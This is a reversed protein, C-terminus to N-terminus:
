KILKFVRKESGELTILQYVGHALGKLEDELRIVAGVIEVQKSFIVKGSLDVLSIDIHSVDSQIRIDLYSGFPNPYVSIHDAEAVALVRNGDLVVPEFVSGLVKNAAYVVAGNLEFYADEEMNYLKFSLEDAEEATASLFFLSQDDVSTAPAYGIVEDKRYAVLVYEEIAQAFDFSEVSAVISMTHGGENDQVTFYSDYSRENVSRSGSLSAREPYTLTGDSTTNLMYGKGPQMNTLSGVWGLASGSYMAFSTSSKIVDGVEPSISVLAEALTMKEQPLFGIYNWGASIAIPHGYVDFPQGIVKLTASEALKVKYMDGATFGGSNSLTGFWAGSSYEDFTSQNKVIDGEAGIDGFLSGVDSLRADDLNFSIWTWGAKLVYERSIRQDAEIDVPSVVTGMITNATFTIEPTVNEHTYGTSADYVRLEIAENNVENSYITLFVQYDDVGSVYTPRAVGRVEDGVFAAVMDYQDTSIVGDIIVRGFVNMSYEFQNEDVQWDPEDGSVRLDIALRDNFGEDTSLYIGHGYSGVNLADNVDFTIVVKELPNVFGSTQSASLWAPINELSYGQASGSKNTFSATFSMSEDVAKMLELADDDWKIQNQQVYATWTVPSLLKNGNLDRVSLITIEMVQGEIRNADVNPIIIIQDNNVAFDFPLDQMGRIDRIAPRQDSFHDSGDSSVADSVDSLHDNQVQDALTNEMIYAGLLVEYTEFPHYSVLGPEDREIKTHMYQNILTASRATNWFRVEDVAGSLYNDYSNTAADIREVRAGLTVEAGYFQDINAANVQNQREGDIYMRANASRDVVFALHHWDGDMYDTNTGQFDYGNSLVHITGDTQAEIVVVSNPNTETDTGDGLGNSLLTQVAGTSNGKFWLEITFDTETDALINTSSITLYNAGDLEWSVGGPELSWEAGITAHRSASRDLGQTGNGEDLPWYGYLGPENGVLTISMNAVAEGYTRVDEWIRLEHMRGAFQGSGIKLVGEYSPNFEIGSVDALVQDDAYVKVKKNDLDYAFVWHHWSDWPNTVTYAASPDISVTNNGLRFNIDAGVQTIAVQNSGSGTTMITTESSASAVENQMWFEITFSKKNFTVNDITVMDDVGDFQVSTAHSVEAGNLVSRVEINFDKVFGAEIEESFKILIDDGANLVGDAPSPTGFVVPNSTDLTGTLYDSEFVSGDSCHARARIQYKGDNLSSIDWIFSVDASGDIVDKPGDYEAYGTTEANKFYTMVTIPTGSLTKYQFDIKELTSLNVNYGDLNVPIENGDAYNIIWNENFNGVAVDSCKPLFRASVYVTDAIDAQSTTPDFQCTSHLIIGISDYKLVGSAGQQITLTKQLIENANVLYQREATLGDILLIAGDPNTSEDISIEYWMNTSTESENGLQLTFVAKEGEPVNAQISPSVAITPIERKLTATHLNMVAGDISVFEAEEGGEYPCRSAGGRVSFIPSSIKFGTVNFDTTLDDQKNFVELANNTHDVAEYVFAGADILFQATAIFSNTAGAKKAAYKAIAKTVAAGALYAGAFILKEQTEARFQKYSKQYDAFVSKNYIGVGDVTKVDISYYDGEDKEDIVYGFTLSHDIVKSGTNGVDVTGNFSNRIQLGAGNSLVGFGANWTLRMSRVSSYNFDKNYSQKVESSYVGGSGDISINDILRANIKDAENDALRNLWSTIQDNIFQVSDIDDGTEPTFTYSLNSINAEPDAQLMEKIQENFSNDDNNLGYYPSSMPLHSEYKPGEFLEDRLVLLTPILEEVIYRQSYIFYTQIGNNDVAYGDLVAIVVDSGTIDLYESTELYTEAWARDVLRLNSTKSVLVNTARGIFLDADSGVDEPDASTEIRETFDYSETYHGNYDYARSVQIGTEGIEDTDLSVVPGALGGGAQVDVGKNVIKDLSQNTLANLEWGETVSYSSGKEIYAYSNSGPPDRLVFDVQDPGYTVFGTGEQPKVGLVYARFPDSSRWAIGYGEVTANVEFTKTFSEDGNMQINPSGALFAYRFLGNEDTQGTNGQDPTSGINDTIAVDAKVVPVYDIIAGAPHYPNRYTEVVYVNAEYPKGMNFFPYDFPNSVSLDLTKVEGSEQDSYQLETDGEFAEDNKGYVLIEPTERIIFNQKHHYSYTASSSDEEDEYVVIEDVSNRLDLVPLDEADIAYNASTTITSIVFQEPLMEIEYEGTYPDTDVTVVPLDYAANQLNFSLTASGVNNTSLGFGLQKEAERTGGVLRGAVKIKTSDTFNVQLDEIFEHFTVSGLEDLPPFYGEYFTHGDKEVSLYHNGIPVNIEYNGEADTRVVKNDSGLAVEGDILVTVDQVPVNTDKYSVKGTVTFFSIDDFDVNNQVFSGDGLYISKSSPTFQHQGFAPTVRFVNGSGKYPIYDATYDGFQDTTARIGLKDSSPIESSFSTGGVFLGDNQNFNEGTKAVDYVESGVGEDFRYYVKLGVQENSILRDYNNKIQDETRAVSWLRFEDLNGELYYTPGINGNFADAESGVGLFGYRQNVSGFEAIADTIQVDLEGDVYMSLTGNDFVVAVHHWVGDDVRVTSQITSNASAGDNKAINFGLYGANAASGGIELRWYESADFSALIQDGSSSTKFWAEVTMEKYDSGKYSFSDIAVYDGAGDFKLSNGIQTGDTREFNIVVDEVANGGTYETHGNAIGFPQRFGLDVVENTYVILDNCTTEGTVRYNYFVGSSASEDKYFLNNDVVAILKYNDSGAVTREVRFRDVQSLSGKIEWELLVENSFYGKSANISSLVDDIDLGLLGTQTTNSFVGDPSCANTAAIKYRYTECISIDADSYSTVTNALEIDVTNSGDLKERRLIFGSAYSNSPNTWTIDLENNVNDVVVALDNPATPPKSTFGSVVESNSAVVACGNGDNGTAVVRYYYTQEPNPSADTFSTVAGDLTSTLTIVGTTFASNTARQVKWKPPSSTLQDWDLDITVDCNDTTASFGSPAAYVATMSGKNTTIKDDSYVAVSNIYWRTKLQYTEADGPSVDTDEKSSGGGTYITTNDSVRTVEYSPTTGSSYTSSAQFDTWSVDIGNDTNCTSASFSPNVKTNNFSPPKVTPTYTLSLGVDNDDGYADYGGSPSEDQYYRTTGSIYSKNGHYYRVLNGWQPHSSNIEEDYYKSIESASLRTKWIRVEGVYMTERAETTVSKDGIFCDGYGSGNDPFLAVSENDSNVLSWQLLLTGDIYIQVTSAGNTTFAVHHWKNLFDPGTSGNKNYNLDWSKEGDPGGKIQVRWPKDSKESDGKYDLSVRADGNRFRFLNVNDNDNSSLRMWTEVTFSRGEIGLGKGSGEDNVYIKRGEGGTLDISGDRNQAFLKASMLLLSFLLFLGIRALKRAHHHISRKM